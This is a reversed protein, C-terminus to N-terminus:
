PSMAVGERLEISQRQTQVRPVLSFYSTGVWDATPGGTQILVSRADAPIVQWTEREEIKPMPHFREIPEMNALLKQLSVTDRTLFNLAALKHNM